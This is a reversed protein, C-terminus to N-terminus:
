VVNRDLLKRVVHRIFANLHLTGEEPKKISRREKRLPRFLQGEQEHVVFM